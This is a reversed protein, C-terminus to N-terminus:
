LSLKIMDLWSSITPIVNIRKISVVSPLTNANEIAIHLAMCVIILITFQNLLNNLVHHDTLLLVWVM